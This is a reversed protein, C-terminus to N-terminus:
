EGEREKARESETERENLRCMAGFKISENTVSLIYIVYRHQVNVAVAVTPIFPVEDIEDRFQPSPVLGHMNLGDLM